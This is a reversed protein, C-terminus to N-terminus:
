CESFHIVGLGLERVGKISSKEPSQIPAVGKSATVDPVLEERFTILKLQLVNSALFCAFLLM